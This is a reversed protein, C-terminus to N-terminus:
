SDLPRWGTSSATADGRLQAASRTSRRRLVQAFQAEGAFGARRAIEGISVARFLRSQLMRTAIDLRTNTLLEGFTEAFAALCRHLEDATTDLAHAVGAATLAPDACGQHICDKIRTRLAASGSKPAAPGAVEAALLALLAGIQDNILRPPLQAGLMAHPSLQAILSTLARGWHADAPIRMGVLLAPQEVWRRLWAASVKLHVVDYAAHMELRHGIMSDTLVADGPELRIRGTHSLDWPAAYNAILHFTHEGSRSLELADRYSWHASGTQRIITVGDFAAAAIHAETSDRGRSDARMPILASSLAATFYEFRQPPPVDATSWTIVGPPPARLPDVDTEMRM